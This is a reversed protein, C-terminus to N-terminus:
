PGIGVHAEVRQAVSMRSVAMPTLNQAFSLATPFRAPGRSGPPEWVPIHTIVAMNLTGNANVIRPVAPPHDPIAPQAPNAGAGVSGGLIALTVAGGALVSPIWVRWSFM